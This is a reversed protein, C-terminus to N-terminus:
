VTYCFEYAENHTSELMLEIRSNKFLFKLFRMQSEFGPRECRVTAYHVSQVIFTVSYRLKKLM